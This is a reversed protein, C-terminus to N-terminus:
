PLFRRWIRPKESYDPDLDNKDSEDDSLHETIQQTAAIPSANMCNLVIMVLPNALPLHM